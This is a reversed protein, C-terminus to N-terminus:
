LPYSFLAYEVEEDPLGEEEMAKELKKQRILAYPIFVQIIDAVTTLYVPADWYIFIYHLLENIETTGNLYHFKYIIWIWM